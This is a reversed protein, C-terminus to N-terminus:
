GEDVPSPAAPGFTKMAAWQALKIQYEVTAQQQEIREVAQAVTEAFVEGGAGGPHINDGALLDTRDDIADSWDAVAVGPHSRAFEALDRNVGPIWDRPAFANVLVLARDRGVTDYLSGLADADVPGNTGLAVVVYDRLEGRADLRHAIDAGAYMSRSVKADVQIGPMRQLLGEASALMVSDGIASVRAGDIAVPKPPLPRGDRPTCHGSGATIRDDICLPPEPHDGPRIPADVIMRSVPEAGATANLADQGAEVVAESSTIQPAAAVAATTGGLVLVVAALATVASFRRSPTSALRRRMRMYVGRFGYRRVPQEILRYSLEAAGLTLVLAAAGVPLPVGADATTGALASTLLVVLPWHWLYIGYSRDGIWRLPAVDLARGFWSGPATAVLILVASLISAAILVGPFTWADPSPTLTAVFVLAGLAVVGAAGGWGPSLRRVSLGQLAFALAVGLLLGFAHTDTGYYARTPDAPTLAFVAWAASAAGLAVAAAVRWRRRLLLFLPLLLPWLLYFQEEVALSWLNRFLEPQSAAFYSAGDAISVWNYSFTAAGLLQRGVDVLVDGGVFWAATACVTVVLALAPVLRRIRRQWFSGLAITGTAARERLLLSTILFGSIVFFVDVGIFGSRLIWGPFLHYLVVLIVAVARLGDLGTFRSRTPTTM